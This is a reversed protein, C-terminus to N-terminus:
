GFNRKSQSAAISTYINTVLGHFRFAVCVDRQELWEPSMLFKAVNLKEDLFKSAEYIAREAPHAAALKDPFSTGPYRTEVLVNISRSITTNIQKYDHFLALGRQIDHRLSKLFDARYQESDQYQRLLRAKEASIEDDLAVAAARYTDVARDIHQRPIASAGHERLRKTRAAATSPYDRAVVGIMMVDSDLRQYNFGFTCLELDSSRSVECARVTCDRCANPLPVISGDRILKGFRHPFPFLSAKDAM